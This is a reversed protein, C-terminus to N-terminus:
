CQQTKLPHRSKTNLHLLGTQDVVQDWKNAITILLQYSYANNGQQNIMKDKIKHIMPQSTEVDIDIWILADQIKERLTDRLTIRPNTDVFFEIAHKKHSQFKDHSLFTSNNM